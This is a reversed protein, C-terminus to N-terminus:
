PDLLGPRTAARIRSDPDTHSGPSKVDGNVGEEAATSEVVVM